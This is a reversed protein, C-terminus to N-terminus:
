AKRRQTDNTELTKLYSNREKEILLNRSKKLFLKFSNKFSDHNNFLLNFLITLVGAAVLILSKYPEIIKQNDKQLIFYAAGSLFPLFMILHIYYRWKRKKWYILFHLDRNQALLDATTTKYKFSVYEDSSAIESLIDHVSEYQELAVTIPYTSHDIDLYKEKIQKLREFNHSIIEFAEALAKMAKTETGYVHDIDFHVVEFPDNVIIGLAIVSQYIFEKDRDEIGYYSYGKALPSNIEGPYYPRIDSKAEKLYTGHINIIRNLLTKIVVLPM